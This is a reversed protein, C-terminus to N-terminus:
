CKNVLPDFEDGFQDGDILPFVKDWGCRHCMTTLVDAGYRDGM